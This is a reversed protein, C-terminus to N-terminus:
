PVCAITTGTTVNCYLHGGDCYASAAVTTACPCDDPACKLLPYCDHSTEFGGDDYTLVCYTTAKPCQAAGCPFTSSGGDGLLNGAGGGSGGRSGDGATSDAGADDGANGFTSPVSDNFCATGLAAAGFLAIALAGGALFRVRALSAGRVDHMM